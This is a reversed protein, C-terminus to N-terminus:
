HKAGWRVRGEVPEAHCGGLVRNQSKLSVFTAAWLCAKRNGRRQWGAIGPKSRALVFKKFASLFRQARATLLVAEALILCFPTPHHPLLPMAASESAIAWRSRDTPFSHQLGHNQRITRLPRHPLSANRIVHTRRQNSQRSLTVLGGRGHATFTQGKFFASRVGFIVLNGGRGVVGGESSTRFSM